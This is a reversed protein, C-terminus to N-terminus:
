EYDALDYDWDGALDVGSVNPDKALMDRMRKLDDLDNSASFLADAQADNIGLLQRAQDSVSEAKDGIRVASHMRIHRMRPSLDLKDPIFVADPHAQAVVWGALCATTGCDVRGDVVGRVWVGQDHQEPHAEIWALAGDLREIDVM